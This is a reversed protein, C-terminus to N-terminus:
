SYFIHNGIVAVVQKKRNWYPKVQRTHFYLAKFDPLPISKTLVARALTVATDYAKQDRVKKHKNNTWSFQKNAYVVGCVTNQFQKSRVRNLTVQAVAIQGELPEGRAEMYINKALCDVDQQTAKTQAVHKHTAVGLNIATVTTLVIAAIKLTKM